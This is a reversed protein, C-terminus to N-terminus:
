YTNDAEASVSVKVKIIGSIVFVEDLLQKNVHADYMYSCRVYTSHWPCVTKGFSLCVM